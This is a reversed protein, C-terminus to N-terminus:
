KANMITESETKLDRAFQEFSQDFPPIHKAYMPFMFGGIKEIM